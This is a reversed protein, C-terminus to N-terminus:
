GRSCCRRWWRSSSRRSASWPRSRPTGTPHLRVKEEHAAAPSGPDPVLDIGDAEDLLTARRPHGLTSFRVEIRGADSELRVKEDTSKREVVLEDDVYWRLRRSFGPDAEVRHAHDAATLRWVQTVSM